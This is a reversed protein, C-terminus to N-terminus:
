RATLFPILEVSEIVSSSDSVSDGTFSLGPDLLRRSDSLVGDLIGFNALREIAVNPDLKEKAGFTWFVGPSCTTLDSM